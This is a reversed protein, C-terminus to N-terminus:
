LQQKVWENSNIHGSAEHNSTYPEEGRGKCNLMSSPGTVKCTKIGALLIHKYCPSNSKLFSDYGQSYDWGCKFM